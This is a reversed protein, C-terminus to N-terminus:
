ILFILLFFLCKLFERKTEILIMTFKGNHIYLTSKLSRILEDSNKYPTHIKLFSPVLQPDLYTFLSCLIMFIITSAIVLTFGYLLQRRYFRFRFFILKCIYKM